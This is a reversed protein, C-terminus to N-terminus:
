PHSGLVFSRMTDTVADHHINHLMARFKLFTTKDLAKTFIDAVQEATPVWQPVSVRSLYQERGFTVWNEYHRTRQTAGVNTVNSVAAQNDCLISVPLSVRQQLDKLVNLVFRLDKVTSAYVATEAEASSQPAIKLKKSQFAIAAGCFLIVHGGFPFPTQGWSSDTYAM